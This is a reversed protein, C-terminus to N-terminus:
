QCVVRVRRGSQQATGCAITNENVQASNAPTRSRPFQRPPAVVPFVNAGSAVPPTQTSSPGNDWIRRTDIQRPIIVTGDSTRSCGSGALLLGSSLCVLIRAMMNM